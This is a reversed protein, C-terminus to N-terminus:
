AARTNDILYLGDRKIRCLRVGEVEIYVGDGKVRSVLVPTGGPIDYGTNDDIIVAEVSQEKAADPIEIVGDSRRYPLFWVIACGRMARITIDRPQEQAAVEDPIFVSNM